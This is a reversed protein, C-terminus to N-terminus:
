KASPRLRRWFTQPPGQQSSWGKKHVGRETSRERAKDHLKADARQFAPDEKLAEDNEIDDYEYDYDDAVWPAGSGKEELGDDAPEYYSPYPSLGAEQMKALGRSLPEVLPAKADFNDEAAGKQKDGGHHSRRTGWVHQGAATDGYAPPAAELDLARRYLEPFRMELEAELEAQHENVALVREAKKSPILETPMREEKELRELWDKYRAESEPTEMSDSSQERFSDVYDKAAQTMKNGSIYKDFSSSFEHYHGKLIFCDGDWGESRFKSYLADAVPCEWSFEVVRDYFVVCRSQAWKAFGRRSQDDTFTAQIMELTASKVFNLPVRLNIADHIHSKEFQAPSRLDIVLVRKTPFIDLLEHLQGPLIMRAGDVPKPPESQIRLNQLNSALRQQEVRDHFWSQIDTTEVGFNTAIFEMVAGNPQPDRQFYEELYEELQKELRPGDRRFRGPDFPEKSPRPMRNQPLVRANGTRSTEAAPPLLPGFGLAAAASPHRSVGTQSSIYAPRQLKPRRVSSVRPQRTIGAALSRASLTNARTLSEQENEPFVGSGLTSQSGRRYPGPEQGLGVNDENPSFTTGSFVSDADDRETDSDSGAGSVSANRPRSIEGPESVPVAVRSVAEPAPPHERLLNNSRIFAVFSCAPDEPLLDWVMVPMSLLLLTSHSQFVGQVKVFKAMAPFNALWEEWANLDLRQDEELALSIMVHPEDVTPGKTESSGALRGDTLPPPPSLLRSGALGGVPSPTRISEPTLRSFEISPAKHNSTMMFHVPTSRAEFQKGNILIPRPHKLRALIEAHLMAASFTRNRWEVLVEILANTFSYRGPDPAIADWSSASITETISQGHAFTASAAGACCDLLILTDSISRELLTQIASWQLWPSGPQRTACWTSQRSEDIKAHGGYYVVFLTKESEHKKIMDGVKLM